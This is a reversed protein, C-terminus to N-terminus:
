GSNDERNSLYIRGRQQGTGNKEAIGVIAVLKPLLWLHKDVTIRAQLMGVFFGTFRFMYINASGRDTAIGRRRASMASLYLATQCKIFFTATLNNL